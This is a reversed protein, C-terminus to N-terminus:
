VLVKQMNGSINLSYSGFSSNFYFEKSPTVTNFTTVTDTNTCRFGEVGCGFISDNLQARLSDVLKEYEYQQCNNSFDPTLLNGTLTDLRRYGRGYNSYYNFVYYKKSQITTDYIIRGKLYSISTNSFNTKM